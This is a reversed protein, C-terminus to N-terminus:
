YNDIYNQIRKSRKNIFETAKNMYLRYEDANKPIPMEEFNNFPLFHNIETFDENTLDELFYFKCYNEFKGFLEFFKNYRKITELLPNYEERQNYYRKICELSLDFRDYIKPNKGREQNFSNKTRPYMIFNGIKHILKIFENIENIEKLYRLDIKKWNGTYPNIMTDSSLILECTDTKLKLGNYDTESLIPVEGNPLKKSWLLKHYKRLTPSDRDPLEVGKETCFDLNIDIYKIDINEMYKNNSNKENNDIM